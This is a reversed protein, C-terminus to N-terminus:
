YCDIRYDVNQNHFCSPIKTHVHYLMESKIEGPLPCCALGLRPSRSFRPQLASGPSYCGGLELPVSIVEIYLCSFCLGAM